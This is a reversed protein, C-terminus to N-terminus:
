KQLGSPPPLDSWSRAWRRLIYPKEGSPTTWAVADWALSRGGPLTVTARLGFADAESEEAYDGAEALVPPQSAQPNAQWAARRDLFAAIGPPSLGPVASLVAPSAALPEIGAKLCDVTLDPAVRDLLVPRMGKVQALEAVTEFPGDRAGSRRGLARYENDEAGQPRRQSDPDRWDLIAQTIAFADESPAHRALLGEILRARGTNLDVKGCEDRIEIDIRIGDKEEVRREYGTIAAGATASPALLREIGRHIAGEAMARAEAEGNLAFVTQTESRTRSAIALAVGALLVLLWLVAIIAIGRQNPPVRTM